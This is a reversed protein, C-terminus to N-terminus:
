RSQGTGRGVEKNGAIAHRATELFHEREEAGFTYYESLVPDKGIAEAFLDCIHEVRGLSTRSPFHRRSVLSKGQKWHAVRGRALPADGEAQGVEKGLEVDSVGSIKMWFAFLDSLTSLTKYKDPPDLGLIRDLREEDLGYRPQSIVEDLFTRRLNLLDPVTFSHRDPRAYKYRINDVGSKRGLSEM